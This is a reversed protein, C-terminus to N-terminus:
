PRAALKGVETASVARDRIRVEDLRLDTQESAPSAARRAADGM